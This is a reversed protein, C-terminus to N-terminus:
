WVIGLDEVHGQLDDESDFTRGCITCRYEEASQEEVAM